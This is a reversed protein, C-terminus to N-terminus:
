GNLTINIGQGQGGQMGQGRLIMEMGFTGLAQRIANIDAVRAGYIQAAMEADFGTLGVIDDMTNKDVGLSDQIAQYKQNSGFEFRQQEVQAFLGSETRALQEKLKAKEAM